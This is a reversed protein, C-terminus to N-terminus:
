GWEFSYIVTEQPRRRLLNRLWDKIRKLQAM